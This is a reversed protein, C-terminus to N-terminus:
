VMGFLKGLRVENADDSRCELLQRVVKMQLGEEGEPATLHLLHFLAAQSQLAQKLSHIANERNETVTNQEIHPLKINYSILLKPRLELWARYALKETPPRSIRGFSKKKKKRKKSIM